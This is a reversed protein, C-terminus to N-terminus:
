LDAIRSHTHDDLSRSLSGSFRYIAIMQMISFLRSPMSCFDAGLRRRLKLFPRVHVALAAFDFPDSCQRAYDGNIDQYINGILDAQKWAGGDNEEKEKPAAFTVATEVIM